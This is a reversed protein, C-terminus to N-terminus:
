LINCCCSEEVLFDELRFTTEASKEDINLNFYITKRLCKCHVYKDKSDSKKMEEVDVDPSVEYFKNHRGFTSLYDENKEEILKLEEKTLKPM